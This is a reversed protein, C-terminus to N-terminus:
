FLGLVISCLHLQEEAELLRTIGDSLADVRLNLLNVNIFLSEVQCDLKGLLESIEFKHESLMVKQQKCLLTANTLESDLQKLLIRSSDSLSSCRIDIQGTLDYIESVIKPDDLLFNKSKIQKIFQFFNILTYEQNFIIPLFIGRVFLFTMGVILFKLFGPDGIELIRINSYTQLMDKVILMYILNERTFPQLVVPNVYVVEDSTCKGILILLELLTKQVISIENKIIYTQATLQEMIIYYKILYFFIFCTILGFFIQPLIPKIKKNHESIIKFTNNFILRFNIM